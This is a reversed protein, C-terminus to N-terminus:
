ARAGLRRERYLLAGGTALLMLAAFLMLHMATPVYYDGVAPASADVPGPLTFTAMAQAQMYADSAGGMNSAEIGDAAAMLKGNVINLLTQATTLNDAAMAAAADEKAAAAWAAVNASSAMVASANSDVDSRASEEAAAAAGASAAMALASIGDDADIIDVAEGTAANLAELSDAAQAEAVKAMAADVQSQLMALTSDEGVILARIHDISGDVSDSFAMMDSPAPDDDPVSEVTIVATDYMELLNGGDPSTWTHSISGDPLVTMVGTSVKDDSDSNVLWGEFAMGSELMAVGSMSFTVRDSMAGADSIVASGSGAYSDAHAVAIPTTMLLILGLTILLKSMSM